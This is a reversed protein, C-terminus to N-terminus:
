DRHWAIEDKNRIQENLSYISDDKAILDLELKRTKNKYDTLERETARMQVNLKMVEQTM